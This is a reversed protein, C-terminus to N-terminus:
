PHMIKRGKTSNGKREGHGDHKGERRGIAISGLPACTREKKDFWNKKERTM